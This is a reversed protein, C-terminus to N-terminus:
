LKEAPPGIMLGATSATSIVAAAGCGGAIMGRRVHTVRSIM